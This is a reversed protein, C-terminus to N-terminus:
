ELLTFDIKPAKGLAPRKVTIDLTQRENTFGFGSLYFGKDNVGGGYDLRNEKRATADATFRGETMEFWQGSSNRLWQNTYVVWRHLAGMTPNFNELFSHTGKVYTNTKPRRFKAILRWQNLEPDYFYGAFDTFDNGAPKIQVLCRYTVGAKWPYVLYSQGGSGEGGFNKTTVGKGKKLLKITYEEPIENPNDTQYPSWVSFLIRRENASNVQIGMYGGDFGNSMFYSGIVDQNKPVYVENYFWEVNGAEKPITYTMHTSPGRRGFYVDSRIFRIKNPSVGGIMINTINGFDAADKSIGQLDVFFYGPKSIIFNGASIIKYGSAPLNLTKSEGGFTFKIKSNGNSVQGEFGLSINAPETLYFYTRLIHNPNKWNLVGGKKVIQHTSNIDNIVWTNAETPIRINLNQAKLLPICTFLILFALIKKM